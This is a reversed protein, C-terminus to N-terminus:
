SATCATACPASMAASAPRGRANARTTAVVSRQSALQHPLPPSCKGHHPPPRQKHSGRRHTPFIGLCQATLTRLACQNATTTKSVGCAGRLRGHGAPLRRATSDPTRCRGTLTRAPWLKGVTHATTLRSGEYNREARVITAQYAFLEPGSVPHM